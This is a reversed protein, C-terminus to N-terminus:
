RTLQSDSHQWLPMKWDDRYAQILQQRQLSAWELYNQKRRAPSTCAGSCSEGRAAPELAYDDVAMNFAFVARNQGEYPDSIDTLETQPASSCGTLALCTGAVAIIALKEQNFSVM